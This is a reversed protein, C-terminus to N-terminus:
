PLCPLHQLLTSHVIGAWAQSRGASVFCWRALSHCSALEKDIEQWNRALKEGAERWCHPICVCILRLNISSLNHCWFWSCSLLVRTLCPEAIFYWQLLFCCSGNRSVRRLAVPERCRCAQWIAEIHPPRLDIHQLLRWVTLRQKIQLRQKQIARSSATRGAHLRLVISEWWRWEPVGHSTQYQLFM